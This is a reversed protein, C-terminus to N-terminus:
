TRKGKEKKRKGKEKKGKGHSPVFALIILPTLTVPTFSLSYAGQNGLLMVLVGIPKEDRKIARILEKM